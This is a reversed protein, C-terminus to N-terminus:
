NAILGKRMNQRETNFANICEQQLFLSPKMTNFYNYILALENIPNLTEVILNNVLMHTHTDLLVNYLITGKKYPIKYIKDADRKGVMDQAKYWNDKYCVGHNISMVTEESPIDPYVADKKFCILYHDESLIQTIAKIPKLGITHHDPKICQIEIIGQDTNIPTGSPFCTNSILMTSQTMNSMFTINENPPSPVDYPYQNMSQLRIAYPITLPIGLQGYYNDGTSWATGDTMLVYTHYAGCSIAQPTRNGIQATSTIMQTLISQTTQNGIGLQGPTNYGTVWITGDTMLILTHFSGCSISQPKRGGIMTTNMQTLITRTTFNGQAIGLQGLANGGICWITDDNMLVVTYNEGCSTYQPKRVGIMTTNMQNLITGGVGGYFNTGTGWITGNTMLVVTHSIGCSIFQPKAGGIMDTNMQTLISRKTIDGVAIGLQGSSNRGTGWITGDTMLVITYNQGCYIYQPTRNAIMTTNMQTLIRRSTYNNLATGLQGDDNNGTCWITNDTMLIISHTEGCTIYRPKRGGTNGGSNSDPNLTLIARNSNDGLGLGLQGREGRGVVWFTEDRKIVFLHGSVSDLLYSYYEISKTFYILEIDQSTNEMVWDGGYNINGTKDNSAGVIVGTEQTLITYYNVWNPYNLTDCALYDINKVSFEKIVTIIFELNESYPSASAEENSFFPNSDLFNNVNVSNSAFVIGIRDIQTFTTKLLELLETKTSIDSYIIPFTSANASDSFLQAEKVSNDILLVHKCGSTNPPYVLSFQKNLSIM